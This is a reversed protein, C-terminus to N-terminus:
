RIEFEIIRSAVTKENRILSYRAQYSGPPWGNAPARRGSFAFWSINNKELKSTRDHIMAGKATRVTFHQEDGKQTGYSDVWVVLAPSDSRLATQDYRGARAAAETVAETAIGMALIGTPVYTFEDLARASWLPTRAGSCGNVLTAGADSPTGADTKADPESGRGPSPLGVFPDVPRGRYRVAFEVHPFETSGSLGIQGLVTGRSVRDGPGVVISGKKLHSYQTVWDESHRVVVGNGAERGRVAELGIERVSVDAMGDRVAEVVGDAAALVSVGARMQSLTATRFDTGIAGDYSLRGCGHDLRGPGPDLDVYQQILCTGPVMPDITCDVPSDFQPLTSPSPEVDPPQAWVAFGFCAAQILGAATVVSGLFPGIVGCRRRLYKGTDFRM